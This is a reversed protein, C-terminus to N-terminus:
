PDFVIRPPLRHTSGGELIAWVKGAIERYAVSHPSDPESVVVPTGADSKERISMTLPIEGLFPVGQREAELRAGGNGFIDYRKGTDPAIFYSMNEIIGLIPVEVKRFMAVGRRADILALDQPTAVIVAGAPWANISDVQAAKLVPQLVGTMVQSVVADVVKGFAGGMVVAVALDVVNGRNIFDKFDSLFTSRRPAM